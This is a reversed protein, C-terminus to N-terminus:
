VEERIAGGKASVGSEAVPLNKWRVEATNKLELKLEVPEYDGKKPGGVKM